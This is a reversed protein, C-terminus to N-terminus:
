CAAAASSQSEVVVDYEARLLLRRKLGAAQVKSAQCSGQRCRRSDLTIQARSLDACSMDHDVVPHRLRTGIVDEPFPPSQLGRSLRTVACLRARALSIGRASPISVRTISRVGSAGGARRAEAM